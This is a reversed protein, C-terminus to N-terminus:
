EELATLMLPSQLSAYGGLSYPERRQIRGSFLNRNNGM